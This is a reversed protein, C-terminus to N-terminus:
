DLVDGDVYFWRGARTEFRGVEHLVGGIGKRGDRGRSTARYEVVGHDDGEGGRDTRLIELGVWRRRDRLTLSVPRTRPHWTRQLYGEDGVAFAAYRSRM